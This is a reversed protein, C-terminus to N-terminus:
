PTVAGAMGGQTALRVTAELLVQTGAVIDPLSTWERANHSIGEDSPVFLMGARAIAAMQMADHGAGSDMLRWALRQAACVDALVETTGADLVVPPDDMLTDILCALGREAALARARAVVADRRSTRAELGISRLDIWLTAEGPIVNIASPRVDLMGVTGVVPVPGPARCVEEVFTVLHAAAVLADKRLDMPTAGSHDARGQYRIKLRCPAAIAQVVGVQERAEKLVRGQEIHLELYHGVEGPFRRAAAVDDRTLGSRALIEALRHGARDTLGLLRDPEVTGAMASSGITSVGFRSSEEAVFVLVELPRALPTGAEK